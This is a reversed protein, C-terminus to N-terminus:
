NFTITSILMDIIEQLQPSNGGTRFYFRDKGSAVSFVTFSTKNQSLSGQDSDSCQVVDALHGNVIVQFKACSGSDPSVTDNKNVAFTYGLGEINVQILNSSDEPPYEKVKGDGPYKFEIDWVSNKYTKWSLPIPPAIIVRPKEIPTVSATSSADSQPTPAVPQPQPVPVVAIPMIRKQSAAFEGAIAVVMSVIFLGFVIKKNM